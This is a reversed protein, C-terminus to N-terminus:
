PLSIQCCPFFFRNFFMSFVFPPFPVCSSVCGSDLRTERERFAWVGDWSTDDLRGDVFLRKTIICAGSSLVKYGSGQQRAGVGLDPATPHTTTAPSEHGKLAEM